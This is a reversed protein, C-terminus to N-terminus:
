KLILRKVRKGKIRRKRSLILILNKWWGVLINGMVRKM